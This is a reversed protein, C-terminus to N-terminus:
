PDTALYDPAGVAEKGLVGPNTHCGVNVCALSNRNIEFGGPFNDSLCHWENRPGKRGRTFFASRDPCRGNLTM